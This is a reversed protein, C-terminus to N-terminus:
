SKEASPPHAEPATIRSESKFRPPTIFVEFSKRLEDSAVKVDQEAVFLGYVSSGSGTMQAFEAGLDYLRKKVQAVIPHTRLILPEFDNPLLPLYRRPTILNDLLIQKLSINSTPYRIDATQYAWATSIHISPYVILIWWPLDLDFFDLKEGRGTAYAAGQRLFYPVDSGLQLAPAALDENRLNLKWLENLGLLTSAADSSGGGLGAGVPITKTLQIQVGDRVAYKEHLM